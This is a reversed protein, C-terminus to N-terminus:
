RCWPDHHVNIPPLHSGLRRNTPGPKRKVGYTEPTFEQGDRVIIKHQPTGVGNVGNHQGLPSPRASRRAGGCRATPSLSRPRSNSGSSPAVNSVPRGRPSTGGGGGSAVRTAPSHSRARHGRGSAVRPRGRPPEPKHESVPDLPPPVSVGARPVPEAVVAAAGAVCTGGLTSGTVDAEAVQPVVVEDPKSRQRIVQAIGPNGLVDEASARRTETVQIMSNIMNKVEPSYHKPIKNLNVRGAAVKRKLEPLSSVNFAPELTAMEYLVCGLGWVDAKQGYTRGGLRQPDLYLPTGIPTSVRGHKSCSKAIGFDGLKAQGGEAIFINQPKIDRHVVGANHMKGVAKACDAFRAMLEPESYHERRKARRAIEDSLDGRSAYEMLINVHAGREEVERFEIVNTSKLKAM